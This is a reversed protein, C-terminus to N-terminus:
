VVSKRDKVTVWCEITDSMAKYGPSFHITRGAPQAVSLMSGPDKRGYQDKKTGTFLSASRVGNGPLSSGKLSVKIENLYWPKDGNGVVRFHLVPSYEKHSLVPVDLALMEVTTGEASGPPVALSIVSWLTVLLTKKRIKGM